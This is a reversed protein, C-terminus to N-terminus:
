GRLSSTNRAFRGTPRFRELYTPVIAEIARPEIGLDHFTRRGTGPAVINDSELLRVQDATLPPNPALQAVRGIWRALMFPLPVLLRKRQITQLIYVLLQRFSFIEPGGLEYVHGRAGGRDLLLAIARAVDGAFVPQFRTQGGGILPLAPSFRAMAAFRNFFDDEPGFIISPRVIAAGPFERGVHAEGQAKTRAYLSAADSSAGIASMHVLRQVGQAKAAAAFTRAGEAHVADFKQRGTEFLIGVLNIAADSGSLADAVSGPFRLNAQVPQIQGVAGMPQLHTALDPRRVAVRVRWGARALARVVHRGVFGSGGFVTVLRDQRHKKEAM